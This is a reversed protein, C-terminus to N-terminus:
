YIVQKIKDNQEDRHEEETIMPGLGTYSVLSDTAQLSALVAEDQPTKVSKSEIDSIRQAVLKFEQFTLIRNPFIKLIKSSCPM